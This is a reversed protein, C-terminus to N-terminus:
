KKQIFERLYKKNYVLFSTDKKDASNNLNPYLSPGNKPLKEIPQPPAAIFDQAPEKPMNVDETFSPMFTPLDMPTFPAQPPQENFPRIPEAV